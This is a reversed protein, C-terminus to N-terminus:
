IHILSLIFYLALAASVAIPSAGVWIVGFCGLHLFIFPITRQWDIKDPLTSPDPDGPARYDSDWWHGITTTFAKFRSTM